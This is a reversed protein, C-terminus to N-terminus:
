AILRGEWGSLCAHAPKRVEGELEPFLAMVEARAEQDFSNLAMDGLHLSETPIGEAFVIEHRDFIMHLYVIAPMPQVRITAGNVLHKAAVLVKSEAFYLSARWDDVLMRHQPSVVLRRFNGIAGAEFVIPAFEGLASVERRGIWRIPQLGHEATGVLDGAKLTEIPLPGIDTEILTGKAFCPVDPPTSPFAGFDLNLDLPPSAGPGYQLTGSTLGDYDIVVKSPQSFIQHTESSARGNFQEHQPNLNTFLPPSAPVTDPYPYISVQQGSQFEIDDSDVQTIVVRYCTDADGLPEVGNLIVKTGNSQGSSTVSSYTGIQDGRLFLEVTSM